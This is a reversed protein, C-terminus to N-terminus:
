KDYPIYRVDDFIPLREWVVGGKSDYAQTPTGCDNAGMSVFALASLVITLILRIMQM